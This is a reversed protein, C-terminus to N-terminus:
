KLRCAAGEMFEALRRSEEFAAQFFTPGGGGKGGSELMLPKLLASLNGGDPCSAAAKLDLGSAVVAALGLGSLAKALRMAGAFDGDPLSVIVPAGAPVGSAISKAEATAAADLASKLAAELERNRNSLAATASVVDDEATGNVAASERVIGTLRRYDAYARGGAVFYVRTMGKYKEAKLIRFAGISGTGCLHTGACPTFDIGDIELIRLVDEDEPPKRRLPFAAPNEPPCLHTIIPYDNRIVSLVADEIGDTDVRDMSSLDVDISSYREGLHFSRTPGGLLRLITASLLHQATHQESHDRRRGADLVCRVVGGKVIEQLVIGDPAKGLYHLIEGGDHIVAVVPYGAVTGLDCPQGGGEPYFLTRDLLVADGGSEGDARVELVTADCEHLFPEDYFLPM